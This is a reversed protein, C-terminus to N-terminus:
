WSTGTPGALFCYLEPTVSDGVTVNSLYMSRSLGEPKIIRVQLGLERAADEVLSRSKLVELETLVEGGSGFPQLVDPLKGANDDIRLSAAGRYIPIASMGYVIAAALALAGCLGIQLWHRRLIGWIQAIPLEPADELDPRNLRPPHEVHPRFEFPAPVHSV